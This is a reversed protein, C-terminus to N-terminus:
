TSIDLNSIAVFHRALMNALVFAVSLEFNVDYQTGTVMNLWIRRSLRVKFNKQNGEPNALTRQHVSQCAAVMLSCPPACVLIGNTRLRPAM